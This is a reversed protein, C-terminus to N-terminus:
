FKLTAGLMANRGAQPYYGTGEITTTSGPTTWNDDYTYFYGNSVYKYDFVNNVLGSIVISKFISKPKIEWNVSFDNVCYGKLKSMKSDINGMYQEGVVKTLLSLQLTKIPSFIVMNGAILNPSYAINTDGLNQLEGDRLFVFDKNKNVSLTVNPRITLKNLVAVAADIELGLRYSDGSNARIPSGVDDLQGTLVLQDKYAMYYANVNV